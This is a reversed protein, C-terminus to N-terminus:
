LITNRMLLLGMKIAVISLYISLLAVVSRVGSFFSSIRIFVVFQLYTQQIFRLEKSCHLLALNLILLAWKINYIPSIQVM